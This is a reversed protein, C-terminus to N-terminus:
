SIGLKSAIHEVTEQVWLKRGDLMTIVTNAGKREREDRADVDMTLVQKPQILMPSDTGNAKRITVKIM